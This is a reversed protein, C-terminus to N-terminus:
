PTARLKRQTATIRTAAFSPVSTSRAPWGATSPSIRIPMASPLRASNPMPNAAGIAVSPTIANRAWSPETM